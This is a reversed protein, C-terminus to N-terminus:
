RPAPPRSAYWQAVAPVDEPPLQHAARTMLEAFRGGGVPPDALYLRLQAEIYGARQGALRPFVERVREGSPAHCADCAAVDQEPLGRAAIREGRALQESAAQTPDLAPAPDTEAEAYRAALDSLTAANLGAVAHRMPGSARRGEAYDLLARELAPRPQIDIRPIPGPVAAEGEPGKGELGHCRVCDAMPPDAPLTLGRSPGEAEGYALARYSQADLEPLRQLFAVMAWVEDERHRAPWAPMGTMMVGQDVIWHLEAPTWHDAADSLDSM